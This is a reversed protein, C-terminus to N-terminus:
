GVSVAYNLKALQKAADQAISSINGKDGESTSESLSIGNLGFSDSGSYSGSHKYNLHYVAIAVQVIAAAEGPRVTVSMSGATGTLEPLYVGIPEGYMNIENIAHQECAEALTATITDKLMGQLSAANVITM